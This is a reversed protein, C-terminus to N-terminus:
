TSGPQPMGTAAGALHRQHESESAAGNLAHADRTGNSASSKLFRIAAFGALVSMGLFATPQRRAFDQIGGLLEGLNRQRLADSVSDIQEAAREIYRSALPSQTEFAGAASRVAGAFDSIFDAGADKQNEASARLRQTAGTAASRASESLHSAQEQVQRSVHDAVSSVQEQVAGALGSMM